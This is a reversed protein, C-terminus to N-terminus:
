SQLFKPIGDELYLLNIRNKVVVEDLLFHYMGEKLHVDFNDDNNKYFEYKAVRHISKKMGHHLFLLNSKGTNQLYPVATFHLRKDAIIQMPGINKFIRWRFVVGNSSNINGDQMDSRYECESDWLNVLYVGWVDIEPRRTIELINNHRSDLVEDGDIFFYYSSRVFSALRLLLNRNGLDDFGNRRKKVKFLVKEDDILEYTNDVSSDDLCIIGDVFKSLSRITDKIYGEENYTQILAIIKYTNNFFNANLIQYDTFHELYRKFCSYKVENWAEWDYLINVTLIPNAIKPGKPFLALMVEADFINLGERYFFCSFRGTSEISFERHGLIDCRAKLNEVYFKNFREDFGGVSLVTERSIAFGYGRMGNDYDDIISFYCNKYEILLTKLRVLFDSRINSKRDLIYVHEKRCQKLCLNLVSGYSISLDFSVISLNLFPFALVSEKLDSWLVEEHIAVIFRLGNKNFINSNITLFDLWDNLSEIGTIVIDLNVNNSLDSM